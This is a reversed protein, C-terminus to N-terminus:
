NVLQQFNSQALEMVRPLNMRVRSSIEDIDSMLDICLKQFIRPDFSRPSILYHESGFYEMLGDFKDQYTLCIVPTGMGLAAIALHMRGTIV